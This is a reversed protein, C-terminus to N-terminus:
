PPDINCPQTSRIYKTTNCSLPTLYIETEFLCNVMLIGISRQKYYSDLGTINVLNNFIKALILHDFTFYLSSLPCFYYSLHKDIFCQNLMMILKSKVDYYQSFM